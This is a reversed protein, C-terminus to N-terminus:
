VLMATAASWACFLSIWDSRASSSERRASSRARGSLAAQELLERQYCWTKDNPVEDNALRPVSRTVLPAHEAREARSPGAAAPVRARFEGGAPAVASASRTSVSRRPRRDRRAGGAQAAGRRWAGSAVRGEFLSRLSGCILSPAPSTTIRSPFSAPPPSTTTPSVILAARPSPPPSPQSRGRRARRRQYGLM